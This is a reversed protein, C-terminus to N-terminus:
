EGARSLSRSQAFVRALCANCTSFGVGEIGRSLPPPLLPYSHRISVKTGHVTDTVGVMKDMM